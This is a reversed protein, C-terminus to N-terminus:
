EGKIRTSLYGNRANNFATTAAIFVDIATNLTAGAPAVGAASAVASVFVKFAAMVVNSASLFTSLADAYNEGRVYSQAAGQLDLRGTGSKIAITGSGTNEITTTGDGEVKLDLNGGGSTRLRFPKGPRMRLVVDTSPVDQGGEQEPAKFDAHPPDGADWGRSVIWPGHNPDGSPLAVLVTDGVEVPCYFGFGGGAYGAGLFCTEIEGSPQLQVDVFIGQADDYGQERVIALSLNVRPDIGPRSALASLRGADITRRAPM